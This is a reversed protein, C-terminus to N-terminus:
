RKVGKLKGFRAIDTPSATVLKVDPSMIFVDMPKVKDSLVVKTRVDVKRSGTESHLVLESTFETLMGDADFKRDKINESM